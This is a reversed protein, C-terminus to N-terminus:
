LQSERLTDPMNASAITRNAATTAAFNPLVPTGDTLKDRACRM